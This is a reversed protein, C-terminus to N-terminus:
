EVCNQVYIEFKTDFISKSAPLHRFIIDSPLTESGTKLLINKACRNQCLAHRFKISVRGILLPLLASPCPCHNRHASAYKKSCPVLQPQACATLQRACSFCNQFIMKRSIRLRDRFAFNQMELFM